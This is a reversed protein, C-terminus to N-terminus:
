EKIVKFQSESKPTQVSLFYLGHPLDLTPVTTNTGEQAVNWKKEFVLQGVENYLKLMIDGAIIDQCNVNLVDQVPNPFINFSNSLEIPMTETNGSNGTGNAVISPPSATVSVVVADSKTCGTTTNTVTLVYNMTSTPNATTIATTTSSLATSPSWYYSNGAIAATGITTSAGAVITKDPGANAVPLPNVTVKVTDKKSCGSATATVIYTTTVTPSAYPDSITPSTLATTPSWQYTTTGIPSSGILSANGACSTVDPGASVYPLPNVTLTMDDYKSCGTATLTATVSYITTTSPSVVTPNSITTSSLNNTNITWTYTTGAAAAVGITTSTGQCVTKDVGANAVPNALVTVKATDKKACGTAGNTVTLIYNTTATPTAVPTATTSSNLATTPYWSYLYGTAYTGIATSLGACISKDVGADAVPLPNVTVTVQATKTCGTATLTSVLTYTTTTTPNATPNSVTTSSLGTAPSWSYTTGAAATSGLITSTGACISRNLGANAVPVALVTVVATDKKVCGYATTATLVYHTTATPTAVGSPLNSPTITTSPYWAYTTGSVITNVGLTANNGLCITKDAGANAIAAPNVNVFVQDTKVCGTSALTATLTYTTSATPNATPNSITTNNVGTAPTWSYNTGAVAAVGITTSAGACITKDLGANAVPVALVTVIATDKKVCGYATTATLIYNVTTPTTFSVTPTVVTASSLGATPSWLYTTGSLATTAGITTSTGACTSKDTGANAIAAPNVKVIVQDTKVCGTATLTATLTYTTTGATTSTFTPNSVTTSSLGTAPSWSYTVGTAATTGLITSAGACLTKDLGANAVPSAIVTVKVTDKKYCLSSNDYATVIYSTTSTPTATPNSVSLNSLSAIPKWQYTYNPLSASGIITSSGNCITRDAGANVTPFPYLTFTFSDSTATGCANTTSVTYNGTASVYTNYGTFGNSWSYASSSTCTPCYSGSLVVASGQCSYSSGTITPKQPALNYHLNFGAKTVTPDSKFRIFLDTGSSVIAYNPMATGTLALLIPASASAGDYVYLSDYGYEIDLSDFYLNIPYGLTNTIHWSCNANNMYNFTPGSGDNIAGTCATLTSTGACAYECPAVWNVIYYTKLYDYAAKVNIMGMGYTNDEGAVGMDTCSYYLALKIQEGTLTPFAEKLLAVAGSVHAAAMSTGSLIYYAYSGTYCSRVNEGPAAVEPKILISGTGGCVSPGLSSTPSINMTGAYPAIDVNAVCFTNTLSVNINKPNTITSAGQPGNNGASFVVAIGAAEVNTLVNQYNIDCSTVSTNYDSWSCNIVDPMDSATGANGDPNMAWQFAALSGSTHPDTCLSQAAMWKAGFAVGITDHTAADLGCMIGIIHTGHGDCDQPTAYFPAVPDYWAQSTPISNGAYQSAIAPASPDVGTDINMVKRGCGTYGLAWMPRAGIAVLGPEAGGVESKKAVEAAKTGKKVEEKVLVADEDIALIDARSLLSQIFAPKADVYFMNAVWFAKFDKVEGTNKAATFIANLPGQTERAMSQLRTIVQYARQEPTTKVKYLAQHLTNIDAQSRLTVLTPIYDNASAKAIKAELRPTFHAQQAQMFLALCVFLALLLSKSISTKM